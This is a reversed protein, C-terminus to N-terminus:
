TTRAGGATAAFRRAADVHLRVEPRDLIAGAFGALEGRLLDAVTATPSSWTSRSACRPALRAAPRHRRGTGAPARARPPRAPPLAPRRPDRRSLRAPRLRRRLAHDPGAGRRRRVPRAAARAGAPEDPQPRARSRFPIRESRVVQSWASRARASPSSRRARSWSRRRCRSSPRSGCVRGAGAGRPRGPRRGGSAAAAAAHPPAEAGARASRRAARSAAILPLAHDPRLLALLGVAALAGAGAGLLDARYIRGVPAPFCALASAPARPPSSSPCPSSCTSCRWAVAVAAADLDGGPRQVARGAGHRGRGGRRRRVADRRGRLGAARAAAAPRAAPRSPQRERRLRAAGPQHGHRRLPALPHHGPAADAAGRLRARRRRRPRGRPARADGAGPAACSRFSPWRCRRAPACRATRRGERGPGPAPARFRRRGPDGDARGAPAPRAAAAPHRRRRRRDGHHRRLPRGAARRPLRRGSAGRRQRLGLARLRREAADALPTIIEISHM